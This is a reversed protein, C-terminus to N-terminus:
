KLRFTITYSNNRHITPEDASTGLSIADSTVSTGNKTASVTATTEKGPAPNINPAVYYYLTTSAGSALTQGTAEDFSTYDTDTLVPAVERPYYYARNVVNDIQVNINSLDAGTQNELVLNVRSLMRGLTVNLNTTAVKIDGQYYGFMYLSKGNPLGATSGSTAQYTISHSQGKFDLWTSKWPAAPVDDGTKQPYLNVALCVTCDDLQALEVPFDAIQRVGNDTERYRRTFRNRIVGQKDYQFVWIDWILNEEEPQLPSSARTDVQGTLESSEINLRVTVSKEVEPLATADTVDDTCATTCLLIAAAAIQQITTSIKM